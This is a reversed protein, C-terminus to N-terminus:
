PRVRSRLGQAREIWWSAGRTRAAACLEEKIKIAEADLGKELLLDAETLRAGLYLPADSEMASKATDSLGRVAKHFHGRENRLRAILEVLGLREDALFAARRQLRLAAAALLRAKEVQDRQLALNGLAALCEAQVSLVGDEESIRLAETWRKEASAIDRRLYAVFGLNYEVSPSVDPVDGNTQLTQTARRLLNEAEELNGLYMHCAGCNCLLSTTTAPDALQEALPLAVRLIHIATEASLTRPLLTTLGVYCDVLAAEDEAVRAFELAAELHRKALDLRGKYCQYIGISRDTRWRVNPDSCCSRLREIRAITENALSPNFSRASAWFLASLIEAELSPAEVSSAKLESYLAQLAAGSQEVTIASSYVEVFLSDRRAEFLDLDVEGRRRVQELREELLPRASVYDRM